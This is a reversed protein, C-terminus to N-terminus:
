AARGQGIEKQKKKLCTFFMPILYFSATVWASQDAWTIADYQFIPVLTFVVTCRAIMEIVGGLLARKSYGLGQILMRPLIVLPVVPFLYGMRRLYLASDSLISDKAASIFLMSFRKGLFIMILGAAIGYCVALLLGSRFGSMLRKSQGAGVNQAMFTSVGAGIADFPCMMLQKIKIAATFATTYHTGLSNNASQMVLMGIAILSMQLGMPIGMGLLDMTRIRNITLDDKGPLLFRFKRIILFLCLFGSIAQSAITAAAAGACGWRLVLICFFDLGINLTASFALFFFPTRSDGVARLISSLYNYLLTFPIGAFIIVLYRYSDQYIDQSVQLVRLIGHCFFVLALTLIAAIITTLVAGGFIDKRMESEKEAGFDRAVPIAFGQTLGMCFGLVLAQVSTSSGVSALANSGLTRGVIAADALNYFQQFLNGLVLPICFGAILKLANGSTMSKKMPEGQESSIM